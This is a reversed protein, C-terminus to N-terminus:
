RNWSATRGTSGTAWWSPWRRACCRTARATVSCVGPQRRAGVAGPDPRAPTQLRELAEMRLQEFRHLFGESQPERLLQHVRHQLEQWQAYESTEVGARGRQDAGFDPRVAAIDRLSANQHMLVNARETMERRYTDTEYAQTYAGRALLERVADTAPLVSGSAFLLQGSADRLSFNLRQGPRLANPPLRVLDMLSARDGAAAGCGRPPRRAFVRALTAHAMTPLRFRAQM